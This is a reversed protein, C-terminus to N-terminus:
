VERKIVIGLKELQQPNEAFAVKAVAKFDSIWAILDDLANDRIITAERAEGTEKKQILHKAFVKNIFAFEQELKEPSYGYVSLTSMFEDDCILNAYFSQAQELWGSFSHKRAGYLMVTKDTKVKEKLAVRAIKLTQRYLQKAKKSSENLEATAAVQEGYEQKGTNQLVAVNEYLKKGVTLIEPTYGYAAMTQKIGEDALANEIMKQASLLFKSIQTKFKAM